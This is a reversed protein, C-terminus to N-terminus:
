TGEGPRPFPRFVRPGYLRELVEDLERLLAWADCPRRRPNALLCGKAFATLTGGTGLLAPVYPLHQPEGHEALWRLAAAERRILDNDAPDRALKLLVDQQRYLTAIDGAIPTMVKAAKAAKM